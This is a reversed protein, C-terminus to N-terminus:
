DIEIRPLRDAYKKELHEKWINAPENAHTDASVMFYKNADGAHATRSWGAHGPTNLRWRNPEDINQTSEHEM